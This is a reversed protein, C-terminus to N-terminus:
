CLLSNIKNVFCTKINFKYSAACLALKAIQEPVGQIEFIIRGIGIKSIWGYVEGKGKGMRVEIPKKTVPISPFIRIWLKGLKKICKM